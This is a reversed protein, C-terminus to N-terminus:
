DLLPRNGSLPITFHGSQASSCALLSSKGRKGAGAIDRMVRRVHRRGGVARRRTPTGARSSGRRGATDVERVADPASAVVRPLSADFEAGLVAAEQLVRRGDPALGDVRSLLRGQRSPPVEAEECATCRCDDAERRIVGRVVLQGNRDVHSRCASHERPM